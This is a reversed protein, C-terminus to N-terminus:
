HISHNYFKVHQMEGHPDARSYYVCAILIEPRDSKTYTKAGKSM